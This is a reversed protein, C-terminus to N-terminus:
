EEEPYRCRVAKACPRLVATGQPKDLRGAMQWLLRKDRELGLASRGGVSHECLLRRMRPGLGWLTQESASSLHSNYVILDSFCQM